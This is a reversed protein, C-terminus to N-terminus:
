PATWGALGGFLYLARPVSAELLRRLPDDAPGLLTAEAGLLLEMLGAPYEYRVIRAEELHLDKKLSEVAADRDGIQDILKLQLAQRATYVQGTALRRIAAEDLEARGQDIVQVFQDLAENLITNWLQREEEGLPRFPDLTDKLPGTKLPDSHVGFKAGLESLDYRPIIVGISGTWTVEEAFIKTEPGGGMSVYYGGSAAIRGMAVVMPKTERLKKLALYIRHSDAVLGGPSDVAVVVGRVQEDERIRKITDLVRDTYPPMIVGKIELLAIKDSSGLSGEVFREYPAKTGSRYDRFAAVQALNVMVSIVLLVLLIRM